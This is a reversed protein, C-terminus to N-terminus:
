TQGCVRTITIAEPRGVGTLNVRSPRFVAMGDFAHSQAEWDLYNGPSVSFQTIGPFQKPPPVHWIQVLRSPEEFPLPKILVAYIVSFIATNAGIGLALVVIAAVSFAPSKLLTRFGFKIDERVGAMAM